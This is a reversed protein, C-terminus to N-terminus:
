MYKSSVQYWKNDLEKLKAELISNKDNTSILVDSSIPEVRPWRSMSFNGFPGLNGCAYFLRDSCPESRLARETRLWVGASSSLDFCEYAGRM